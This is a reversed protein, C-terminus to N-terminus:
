INRANIINSQKVRKKTKFIKSNANKALVEYLGTDDLTAPNSYCPRIDDLGNKFSYLASVYKLSSLNKNGKSLNQKIRDHRRDDYLDYPCTLMDSSNFTISICPATAVREDQALCASFPMITITFLLNSRLNKLM